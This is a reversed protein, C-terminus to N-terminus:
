VVHESRSCVLTENRILRVVRFPNFSLLGSHEVGAIAAVDMRILLIILLLAIIKQAM